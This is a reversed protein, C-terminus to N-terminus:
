PGWAAEYLMLYGLVNRVYRRTESYSIDEAFRDAETPRSELWRAVADGGGNYGAVVAPLPSDLGSGKFRQLLSTLEATGLAANYGPQYLQDPSYPSGPYLQEHRRQGLDPMLQMLGRAGV